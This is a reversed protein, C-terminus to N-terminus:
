ALPHPCPNLDAEGRPGPALGLQFPLEFLRRGGLREQGWGFHIPQLGTALVRVAHIGFPAVDATTLDAYIVRHGRESLARVCAELDREADGSSLNPLDHLRAREPRGWLFEFEGRRQPLGLFAPHDELSRVDAYRALRPGPPHDRYRKSESPRAQCLEFVAKELAVAPDLHCGLGVLTAPRRPDPDFAVAMMVAPPLDTRMLFARVEVGFRAYHRRVAPAPGGAEAFEVEVAPLRNMWTVLLADREVLELLGSLVAAGLGPGAALGNSTAPTFSDEARGVPYVLYVLSAPAAVPRRHPLEVAPLWTVEDGASWRHYPWGPATYQRDSYLVCEAPSVGPVQLQEWRALFTKRPDWHHACYREVAEGVAAAMAAERTRGKGAAVREQRDVVRFDFNSLTATYLYPPQPEEAGRAQPAVSRVLGVKPSVLEQWPRAGM